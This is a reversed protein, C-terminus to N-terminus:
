TFWGYPMFDSNRSVTEFDLYRIKVIDTFFFSKHCMHSVTQITSIYKQFDFKDWYIMVFVGFNFSTDWATSFSIVTGCDTLGLRM